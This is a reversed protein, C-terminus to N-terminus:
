RAFAGNAGISWPCLARFSPSHASVSLLVQGYRTVSTTAIWLDTTGALLHLWSAFFEVAGITTSPTGVCSLVTLLPLLMEKGFPIPHGARYAAYFLLLNCFHNGVQALAYSLSVSAKIVDDTEEGEPCGASRAVM